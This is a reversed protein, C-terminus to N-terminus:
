TMLFLKKVRGKLRKFLSKNTYKVASISSLVEECTPCVMRGEPIIESCFICTNDSSM